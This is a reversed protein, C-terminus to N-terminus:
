LLYLNRIGAFRLTLERNLQKYGDTWTPLNEIPVQFYASLYANKLSYILESPLFDHNGGLDEGDQYIKANFEVKYDFHHPTFVVKLEHEGGNSDTVLMRGVFAGPSDYFGKELSERQERQMDPAIDQKTVEFGAAKFADVVEEDSFKHVESRGIGEGM